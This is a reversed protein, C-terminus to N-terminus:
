EVPELLVLGDPGAPVTVQGFSVLVIRGTVADRLVVDDPFLSSVTLRVKGEAGVVVLVEDVTERGTRLGRYFAYPEASVPEHLGDALAPHRGRFRAVTSWLPDDVRNAPVAVPGPMLLWRVDVEGGPLALPASEPRTVSRARRAFVAELGTDAGPLVSVEYAVAEPGGSESRAHVTSMVVFPREATAEPLGPMSRGGDPEPLLVGDFGADYAQATLEAVADLGADGPVGFLIRLGGSRASAIADPWGEAAHSWLVADIGAERLTRARVGDLGGDEVLGITARSWAFDEQARVDVPALGVLLTFLALVIPYTRPRTMARFETPSTGSAPPRGGIYRVAPRGDRAM